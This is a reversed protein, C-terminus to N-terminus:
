FNKSAIFYYKRKLEMNFLDLLIVESKTWKLIKFKRIIKKDLNIWRTKELILINTKTNLNIKGSAHGNVLQNGRELDWEAMIITDNIKLTKSWQPEIEEKNTAIWANLIRTSDYLRQIDKKGETTKVLLYTRKLFSSYNITDSKITQSTILGAIFLFIIFLTKKM